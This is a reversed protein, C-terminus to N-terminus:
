FLVLNNTETAKIQRTWCKYITNDQRTLQCWIVTFLIHQLTDNFLVNVQRTFYCKRPYNFLILCVVFLFLLLLWTQKSRILSNSDYLTAPVDVSLVNYATSLNRCMVRWQISVYFWVWFRFIIGFIVMDM